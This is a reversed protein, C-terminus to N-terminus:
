GLIRWAVFVAAGWAWVAATLSGTLTWINRSNRAARTAAALALPIGLPFAVIAWGEDWGPWDSGLAEEVMLLLTVTLFGFLLLLAVRM